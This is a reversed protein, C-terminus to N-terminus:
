GEGQPSPLPPQKEREEVFAEIAEPRFRVLCRGVHDTLHVSPLRGTHAWEYVTSLGLGLLVAVERAKLLQEMLIAQEAM